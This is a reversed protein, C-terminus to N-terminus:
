FHSQFNYTRLIKRTNLKKRQTNARQFAIEKRVTHTTSIFSDSFKTAYFFNLELNQPFNEFIRKLKM